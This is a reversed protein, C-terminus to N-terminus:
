IIICRVNTYNTKSGSKSTNYVHGKERLYLGLQQFEAEECKPRSIETTQKLTTVWNNPYSKFYM